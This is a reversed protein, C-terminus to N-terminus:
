CCALLLQNVQVPTDLLPLV